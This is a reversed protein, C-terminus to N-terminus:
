RASDELSGTTKETGGAQDVAFVTCTVTRDGGDWNDRSPYYYSIQLTSDAAAIGVFNAFADGSCAKQAQAQLADDGPYADGSITVEAFAESDHPGTCPVTPAKSAPASATAGTAADDLCDGVEIDMASTHASPSASAVTPTPGAGGASTCGALSGVVLAAASVAVLAPRRPLRSV